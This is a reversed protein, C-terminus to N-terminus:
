PSKVFKAQRVVEGDRGYLVMMYMGSPLHAVPIEDGQAAQRVEMVRSGSSSYAVATHWPTGAKFYLRDAVPNPYVQISPARGSERTSLIQATSLHFTDVPIIQEYTYVCIPLESSISTTDYYTIAWVDYPFTSVTTLTTDFYYIISQPLCHQFFMRVVVSDSGSEQDDVEVRSIYGPLFSGTLQITNPEVNLDVNINSVHQSLVQTSGFISLLLCTSLIFCKCPKQVKVTM